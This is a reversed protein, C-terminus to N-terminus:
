KSECHRLYRFNQVFCKTGRRSVDELCSVFIHVMGISVPCQIHGICNCLKIYGMLLCVKGRVFGSSLESLSRMMSLSSSHVIIHGGRTRRGIMMLISGHIWLIRRMGGM